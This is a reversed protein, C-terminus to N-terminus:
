PSTRAGDRTMILFRGEEDVHLREVTFGAATYARIARINAENPDIVLRPTGAEFRQDCYSRLYRAAHGAGLMAPVGVFTDMGRAGPPQEPYPAYDKSHLDYCQLYAFPTGDHTVIVPDVWDLDLGEAMIEYQEDPEGWFERLHPEGLWVRAMALDAREMRRFGYGGRAFTANM